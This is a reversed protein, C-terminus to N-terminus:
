ASEVVVGLKGEEADIMNGARIVYDISFSKASEWSDFTVFLPAFEWIFGHQLKDCEFEVNYSNTKRIRPVSPDRPQPLRSKIDPFYPMTSLLSAQPFLNMEKSPVAPEEPVKPPHKEDYLTFGDPFHLM